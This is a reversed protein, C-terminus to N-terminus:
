PLWGMPDVRSGMVHVEFHLHAVTVYGTSGVSGILEGAGVVQGVSVTPSGEIMHAYLTSIGGGHDIEVYQGWGSDFSVTVVTGPSAAVISSGYGAMIDVGGHFEGGDRYGFGDNVGGSAPWMALLGTPSSYSAVEVQQEVQVIQEVAFADRSIPALPTNSASFAQAEALEATTGSAATPVFVPGPLSAAPISVGVVLAPVACITLLRKIM